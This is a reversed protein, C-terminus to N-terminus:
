LTAGHKKLIFTSIFPTIKSESEVTLDAAQFSKLWTSRSHFHLFGLNYALFNNVDRLHETVCIRGSSKTVRNLEQFFKIREAEDRVEHASLIALSLDFSQDSFPLKDTAVRITDKDPPYAKRARKISVETHKQPDYFDCKTLSCSPYQKKIIESTEDFGANINLIQENRINPMWKLQYLDSLDYVYYSIALSVFTSLIALIALALIFPQISAPLFQYLIFLGIQSVFFLVYMHWNFRIINAVGQFPNRDLEM